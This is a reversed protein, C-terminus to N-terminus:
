DSAPAPQYGTAGHPGGLTSATTSENPTLTYTVSVNQESIENPNNANPFQGTAHDPLGNATLTRSSGNCSWQANSTAQVSSSDNYENYYYDCLVGDTSGNISATGNDTDNNSSTSNDSDTTSNSDSDTADSSTNESASQTENILENETRNESSGCGSLLFTTAFLVPYIPTKFSSLKM